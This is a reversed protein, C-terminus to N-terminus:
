LALTSDISCTLQMTFVTYDILLGLGNERLCKQAALSLKFAVIAAM